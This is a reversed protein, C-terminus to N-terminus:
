GKNNQHRVALLLQDREKKLEDLVDPLIKFNEGLREDVFEDLQKQSLAM